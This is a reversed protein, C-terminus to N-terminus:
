ASSPSCADPVKQDKMMTWHYFGTMTGSGGMWTAFNMDSAHIFLYVTGAVWMASVLLMVFLDRAEM